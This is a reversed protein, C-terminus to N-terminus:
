NKQYEGVRKEFFNTKGQLSILLARPLRAKQDDVCCLNIKVLHHRKVASVDRHFDQAL